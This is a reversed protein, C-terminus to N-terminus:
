LFLQFVFPFDDDKICFSQKVFFAGDIEVEELLKINKREILNNNLPYIIRPLPLVNYKEIFVSNNIYYELTMARAKIYLNQIFINPHQYDDILDKVHCYSFLYEPNYISYLAEITYNKFIYCTYGYERIDVIPENLQLKYNILDSLTKDNIKYTPRFIKENYYGVDSFTFNEQNNIKNKLHNM